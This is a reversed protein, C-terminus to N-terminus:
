RQTATAWLTLHRSRLFKLPHSRLPNCGWPALQSTWRESSCNGIKVISKEEDGHFHGFFVENKTLYSKHGLYVHNQVQVYYAQVCIQIESGDNANFTWVVTGIGEIQLGKGTGGLQTPRGLRTPDDDLDSRYPSIALSAGMDFIVQALIDTTTLAIPSLIASDLLVKLARESPALNAQLDRIARESLSLNVQLDKEEKTPNFTIGGTCDVVACSKYISDL